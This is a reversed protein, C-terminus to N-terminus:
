FSFHAGFGLYDVDRSFFQGERSDGTYYELLFQLSRGLVTASDLQAGARLSLAPHWDNQERSQLDAAAVPRLLRWARWRSRYEVGLQLWWPDLSEPDRRVLYGAGGYLRLEPTFDWSLRADLTEYSVNVRRLTGRLALEDGLHSSTHHVRALASLAGRRWGLFLGLLYDETLLDDSNARDFLPTVLAFGGVEWQQDRLATWRYFPLSEGITGAVVADFDDEDFYQRYGLSFHPWRPDALLPRFLLGGPLLGTDLLRAPGADHAISADLSRPVPTEAPARDGLIVVRSVGEVASLTAVVASRDVSALDAEALRIMGGTVQLSPARVKFERALIAAAYGKIYDDPAPAAHAPVATFALLVVLTAVYRKSSRM